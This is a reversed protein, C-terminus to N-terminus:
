LSHARDALLPGAARGRSRALDWNAARGSATSFLAENGRILIAIGVDVPTHDFNSLYRTFHAMPKM